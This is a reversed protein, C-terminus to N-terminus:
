LKVEEEETYMIGHKRQPGMHIMDQKHGPDM